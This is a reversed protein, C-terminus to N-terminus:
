AGANVIYKTLDVPPQDLMVRDSHWDIEVQWNDDEKSRMDKLFGSFVEAPIFLLRDISGCGLVFGVKLQM